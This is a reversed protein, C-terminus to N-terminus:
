HASAPVRTLSKRAPPDHDVVLVLSPVATMVSEGPGRAAHCPTRARGVSPRVMRKAGVPTSPAPGHPPQALSVVLASPSEVGTAQDPASVEPVEGAAGAAPANDSARVDDDHHGRARASGSHGSPRDRERAGLFWTMCRRGGVRIRSPATRIERLALM